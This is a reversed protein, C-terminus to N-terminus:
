RSTGEGTLIRHRYLQLLLSDDLDAQLRERLSARVAEVPERGTFAALLPWAAAPLALAEYESYAALAVTGDPLWRVTASPNLRLVKPLASGTARAHHRELVALEIAGDQGLLREFQAATLARVQEFCAGYFEAERGEWKGWQASYDGAPPAREDLDEASLPGANPDGRDKGSLLFEPHLQMLAYRSLQIEALSLWTKLTMWFKRGDAGAVYKCFYTSCVAERYRWISCAGPEPEYFPCRLSAARGFAQRSNAYLVSFRAPPREGAEALLAGVLYNPLRPQFTCCKTDPRFFRSVGDVAEVREGVSSELMACDACTAKAEAPLEGGFFDPFLNRYLAPLGDLITPM